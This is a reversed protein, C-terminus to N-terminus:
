RPIVRRRALGLLSLLVLWPDVGGGGSSQGGAVLAPAPSSATSQMEILGDGDTGAYLTPPTTSTDLALTTVNFDELGDNIAVWTAGSNTSKFVGSDDTSAYLTTPTAPDIVVSNVSKEGMGETSQVWTVGQDATKFMGRGITGAYLINSDTPDVVVASVFDGTFGANLPVWTISEDPNHTGRYIGRSSVAGWVTEPNSPDVTLANVELYDDGAIGGIEPEWIVDEAMQEGANQTVLFGARTGAFFHGPTSLEAVVQSIHKTSLGPDISDWTAGDDTSRYAGSSDMGVIVIRSTDDRPGVAITIADKSALSTNAYSWTAGSDASKMVGGGYIAAYRRSADTPDIAIGRVKLNLLGNNQQTFTAGGDTSKYVGQDTGAYVTSVTSPDIAIALVNMETAAENWAAGGNSSYYFGNIAGAYINNTDGPLMALTRLVTTTLGSANSVQTPWTTGGDTSKFLGLGQTGIFISDDTTVALDAGADGVLARVNNILPDPNNRTDTWVSSWAGASYKFVGRAHTAVLLTPITNPVVVVDYAASDYLNQSAGTGSPTGLATWTDGGDASTFLNGFTAAYLTTPTNPDIAIKYVSLNDLGSNISLWNDGGDTSRYIGKDVTGAYILNADTPDIALAQVDGDEFGGHAHGWTNGGDTSKFVGSGQTGAYVINNNSPDVVLAQVIGGHTPLATWTDAGAVAFASWLSLALAAISRILFSFAAVPSM